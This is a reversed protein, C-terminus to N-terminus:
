RSGNFEYMAKVYCCLPHYKSPPDYKHKDNEVPEHFTIKEIEDDVIIAGSNVVSYVKRTLGSPGTSM